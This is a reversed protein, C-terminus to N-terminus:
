FSASLVVAPGGSADPVTAVLNGHLEYRIGGDVPIKQVSTLM